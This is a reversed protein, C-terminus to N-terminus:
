NANKQLHRRFPSIALFVITEGYTTFTIAFFDATQCTVTESAFPFTHCITNTWHWLHCSATLRLNTFPKASPICLDCKLLVTHWHAVGALFHIFENLPPSQFQQVPQPVTSVPFGVIVDQLHQLVFHIFSCDLCVLALENLLEQFDPEMILLQFLVGSWLNRQYFGYNNNCWCECIPLEKLSSRMFYKERIIKQM